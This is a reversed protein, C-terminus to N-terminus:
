GREVATEKASEYINIIEPYPCELEFKGRRLAVEYERALRDAKNTMEELSARLNQVELHKKRQEELKQREEESIGTSDEKRSIKLVEEVEKQKRVKEAEIQRIKKDQEFKQIYVNVTDNYIAAESKWGKDLLLERIKIYLEIVEPYICKDVLEGKKIAKQMSLEYERAMRLAETAMNDIQAKFFEDEMKQFEKDKLKELRAQREQEEKEKVQQELKEVQPQQPEQIEEKKMRRSELQSVFVDKDRQVQNITEQVKQVEYDWGLENFLNAGEKYLQLAEDFQQVEASKAAKGLIDYAQRSIEVERQRSSVYQKVKEEKLSQETVLEEQELEVQSEELPIEKKVNRLFEAKQNYCEEILKFVWEIGESNNIEEYFKVARDYVDLAEEFNNSDLLQKGDKLLQEIDVLSDEKIVERIPESEVIPIEEEVPETERFQKEKLLYVEAIKDSIAEIEDERNIQTYMGIAQRLVEIGDDYYKSEILSIAHAVMEYAESAIEEEMGMLDSFFADKTPDFGNEDFEEDKRENM